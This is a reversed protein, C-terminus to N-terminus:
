EPLIFVFTVWYETPTPRGMTLTPKFVWQKAAAVCAARLLADGSMAQVAAVRGQANTLLRVQVAGTANASIAAAPYAPLVFQLTTPHPNNALRVIPEKRQPAVAPAAVSAPVIVPAFQNELSPRTSVRVLPPEAQSVARVGIQARQIAARLAEESQLGIFHEAVVGDRGVIIVTPIATVQYLRTVQSVEDLLTPFTYNETQVLARAVAPAEANVGLIVLDTDAAARHLKEIRSLELRSPGCWSAWFDLVVVKGRLEHLSLRQGEMTPLTFDPASQGVWSMSSRRPMVRADPQASASVSLLALWIVFSIGAFTKWQSM